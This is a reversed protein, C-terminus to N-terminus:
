PVRRFQLAVPIAWLSTAKLLGSTLSDSQQSALTFTKLDDPYSLM